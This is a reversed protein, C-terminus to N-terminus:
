PSIEGSHFDFKKEAAQYPSIQIHLIIYSRRQASMVNLM